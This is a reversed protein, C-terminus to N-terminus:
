AGFILTYASAPTLDGFAKQLAQAMNDFGQAQCAQTFVRIDLKGDGLKVMDANDLKHNLLVQLLSPHAQAQSALKRGDAYTAMFFAYGNSKGLDVCNYQGGVILGIEDGMGADGVKWGEPCEVAIITRFYIAESGTNKVFVFKDIANALQADSYITDWSTGTYTYDGWKIGEAKDNPLTYSTKVVAPYIKQNQTFPKLGDNTLTANYAVGPKREYEYQEIAVNGVTMTNTASDTDTFYALTFSTLMIAVMAVVLALSIIKKKM